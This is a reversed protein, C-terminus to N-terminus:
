KENTSQILLILLNSFPPYNMVQRYKIEAEYFGIYDQEKSKTISYHEPTYSQIIATGKLSSRGARGTVQTM